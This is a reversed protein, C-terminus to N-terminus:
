EAEPTDKLTVPLIANKTDYVPVKKDGKREFAGEIQQASTAAGWIFGDPFNPGAM